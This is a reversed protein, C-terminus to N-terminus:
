RKRGSAEAELKALTELDFKQLEDKQAKILRITDKAREIDGKAIQIRALTIKIRPDTKAAVTAGQTAATAQSVREEDLAVAKNVCQEAEDLNKDGELLISALTEWAVYLMPGKEVAKRATEEAETFKRIRRQVEALDNLAAPTEDAMVSRSLFDEAEGYAGEQLRLSGLVYNALAHNRNARLVHRAHLEANERDNMSMDLQLIIDKVHSIDPNLAAARLFAERAQRIFGERASQSLTPSASKKLLLQARTVHIFYNDIKIGVANQMKELTIKEADEIEDQQIQLLALMALAQLNKPQRDITEQLTARAAAADKNMLHITAQEVGFTGPKDTLSSLKDLWKKANDISGRQLEARFMGHIASPNEPDTGLIEEYAEEAKQPESNAVMTTAITKLAEVRQDESLMSLLKNLTAKAAAPHGSVAFSYGMRAFLEPSRVYGFYRSLSWLSYQRKLQKIFTNLEKEIQEAFPITVDEKRRAMEFRNFLASINEPDITKNVYNYAAFADKSNGLEELMVGLNNAVFGMHRRLDKRILNTMDEMNSNKGKTTSLVDDMSKWFDMYEKLLPKDKFAETNRCGSFMFFDPVPTLDAAFWLDPINFVAVKTEVAKDAAFWDQLFPMVGLELTSKMKQQDAEPFLQKKVMLDWLFKLYHSNDDRNLYILNFDMGRQKASIQLHPSLIESASVLWTRTGMRDLIENACRDAFTGGSSGPEQKNMVSAVIVGLAFPYAFILGLWAGAKRVSRSVDYARNGSRVKLLLYWYAFLYGVTMAIMAYIGTPLANTGPVMIEAVRVKQWPSFFPTNALAPLLALSLLGHLIYQGISRENNLGRFSALSSIVFPAIGVLLFMIGGTKPVAARLFPKHVLIMQWMVDSVKEWGMAACYDGAGLFRRAVVYLTVGLALATVGGMWAMRPVSLGQMRWLVYLAFALLVPLAPLIFPSEVIGVGCVVAFLALFVRWRHMAFLVLMQAALLPFLVDFSQYQFRTAAHWVPVAFLFAIAALGGGMASVRPAIEYAAEETILDRITFSVIRYVLVVALVGCVLSFLNLRVALTAFPLGSVWAGVISFIPHAPVGMPEFGCVLAMLRASEGPFVGKMLTSGYVVVAVTALLVSMVMDTKVNRKDPERANYDM